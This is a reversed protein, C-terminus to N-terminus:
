LPPTATEDAYESVSLISTSNTISPISSLEKFVPPSAIPKAYVASNTIEWGKSTSNYLLGTVLSTDVDFNPSAAINTFAEFVAKLESIEHALKTVSVNGQPFTALDFHTVVGFNNGGGKLAKFLDSHSHKNVNAVSGNGLVVQLKFNTQVNGVM